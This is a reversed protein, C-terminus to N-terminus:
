KARRQAASLNVRYTPENPDLRAAAEFNRIARGFDNRRMALDGLQNFADAASPNLRVATEFADAAEQLRGSSKEVLGLLYRYLWESPALNIAKRVDQRAQDYQKTDFYLGALRFLLEPTEGQPARSKELLAIADPLKDREILANAQQVIRTAERGQEEQASSQTRLASFRALADRSEAERGLARYAKSLHYFIEPDSGGLRLAERLETVAEAYRGAGNFATGLLFRAEYANPDLRVAKTLLRVADEEHDSKLDVHALGVLASANGPDLRLAEQFNSRSKELDNAGAYAAGLDSRVQSDPAGLKVLTELVRAAQANMDHRLYLAASERLAQQRSPEIELAAAFAALARNDDGEQAYAEALAVRADASKPDCEAASKLEILAQDLQKLRYLALGGIFSVECDSSRARAPELMRVAGAYDGAAFARKAAELADDM